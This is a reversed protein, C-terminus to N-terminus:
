AVTAMTHAAADRWTQAIESIIPLCAATTAPDRTINAQVLEQYLWGYLRALDTGGAFADADLTSSLELIIEQAHVFHRHANEFDAELQATHARQADLELRELLLLLLRMPSATAVTSELYAARPNTYM